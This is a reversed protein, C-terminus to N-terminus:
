LPQVDTTLEAALQEYTYRTQLVGQEVRRCLISEIRALLTLDYTQVNCVQCKLMPISVVEICPM